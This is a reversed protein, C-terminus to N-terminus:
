NKLDDGRSLIAVMECLINVSANEHIFIKYKSYFKVSTQECADLQFYGQMPNSLPKAAFLRCAM